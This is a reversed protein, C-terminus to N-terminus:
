KSLPGIMYPGLNKEMMGYCKQPVQQNYENILGAVRMAEPRGDSLPNYFLAGKSTFLPTRVVVLPSGKQAINKLTNGSDVVYAAWQGQRASVENEVDRVEKMIKFFARMLFWYEGSVIVPTKEKLKPLGNHEYGQNELESPCISAFMMTRAENVNLSGIYQVSTEIGGTRMRDLIDQPNATKMRWEDPYAAQLERFLLNSVIDASSIAIPVLNNRCNEFPNLDGILRVPIGDVVTDISRFVIRDPQNERLYDPQTAYATGLGKYRFGWYANRVAGLARQSVTRKVGKIEDKGDQLTTTIASAIGRQDPFLVEEFKTLLDNLGRGKQFTQIMVPRQKNVLM